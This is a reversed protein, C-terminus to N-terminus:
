CEPTIEPRSQPTDGSGIFFSRGPNTGPPLIM